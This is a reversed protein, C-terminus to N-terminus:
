INEKILNAVAVLEDEQKAERSGPRYLFERPEYKTIGIDGEKRPLVHLHLHKISQGASEGENWAYNFATAGFTKVLANKIKGLVEFIAKREDATLEEFNKVHRIPCILVHGPVIPINTPLAWVLDTAFIVRRKLDPNDCFDCLSSQMDKSYCFVM